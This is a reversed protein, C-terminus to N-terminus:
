FQLLTEKQHYQSITDNRMKNKEHIFIPLSYYIEFFVSKGSSVTKIRQKNEVVKIDARIM